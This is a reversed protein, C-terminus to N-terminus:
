VDAFDIIFSIAKWLVKALGIGCFPIGRGKPIIVVMMWACSAALEGGRFAEHITAVVEEWNGSHINEEQKAKRHWMRLHEARMGSSVGDHHLGLRKVAESSDEEVPINDDM